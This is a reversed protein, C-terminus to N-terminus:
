SWSGLQRVIGTLPSLLHLPAIELGWVMSCHRFAGRSSLPNSSPGPEQGPAAGHQSPLLPRTRM